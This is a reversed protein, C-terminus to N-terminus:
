VVLMCRVGDIEEAVTRTAEAGVLVVRDEGGFYVVGPHLSDAALAHVGDVPEPLPQDEPGFPRWSGGKDESSFLVGSPVGAMSAFLTGAVDACLGVARGAPGVPGVWSAGGDPSRMIGQSTAVAAAGGRTFVAASADFGEAVQRFREGADTSLWIGGDVAAVWRSPEVSSQALARVRAGGERALAKASPNEEWVEGPVEGRLLGAPATGAVVRGVGPTALSWVARGSPWGPAPSWTRGGDDSLDLGDGPDAFGALVAGTGPDRGLCRVSRSPDDVYQDKRWAWPADPAVDGTIRWIGDRTGLLVKRLPRLVKIRTETIMADSELMPDDDRM